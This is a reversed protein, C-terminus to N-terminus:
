RNPRVSRATRKRSPASPSLALTVSPHDNRPSRFINRILEALSRYRTPVPISLTRSGRMDALESAISQSLIRSDNSEEATSRIATQAEALNARALDLFAQNNRALAEAPLAQSVTATDQRRARLVLWALLFGAIFCAVPIINQM